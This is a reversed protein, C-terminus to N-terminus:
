LLNVNLYDGVLNKGFFFGGGEIEIKLKCNEETFNKLKGWALWFNVVIDWLLFCDKSLIEERKSSGFMSIARTAIREKM